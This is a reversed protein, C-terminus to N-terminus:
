RRKARASTSVTVTKFKLVVPVSEPRGDLSAPVFPAEGRDLILAARLDAISIPDDTPEVVSTIEAMGDGFVNAVVVMEKDRFKGNVLSRALALLAGHPNISPSISSVDRRSNAYAAADLSGRGRYVPQSGALYVGSSTPQRTSASDVSPVDMRALFQFFGLTILLSAAAGAFIPTWGIRKQRGYGLTYAFMPPRVNDPIASKAATIVALPVPPKPLRTLMENLANLESSRSSCDACESLHLSVEAAASVDLEGDLYENLSNKTEVCNM